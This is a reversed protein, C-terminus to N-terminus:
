KALLFLWTPIFLVKKNDIKDDKLIEKTIVIGENVKFRNM